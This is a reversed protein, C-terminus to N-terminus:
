EPIRDIITEEDIVLNYAQEDDNWLVLVNEMLLPSGYSASVIDNNLTTENTLVAFHDVKQSGDGVLYLPNGAETLDHSLKLVLCDVRDTVHRETEKLKAVRSRDARIDVATQGDRRLLSYAYQVDVNVFEGSGAPQIRGDTTTHQDTAKSQESSSGKTVAEREAVTRKGDDLQRQFSPTILDNDRRFSWSESEPQEDQWLRVGPAYVSAGVEREVTREVERLQGATNKDAPALVMATGDSTLWGLSEKVVSAPDDLESLVNGFLVLDFVGSEDAPSKVAGDPDFAEIETAHVTPHFNRGTTELLGTLVSTADSPEVAHYEVLVDGPLLADLGLAPGGVGAGVDLVRLHGPILNDELLDALVYQTAAFYASLHYLMYGVATEEDYTVTAGALYREKFDRILRRLQEGSEGDPWGPGFRDIVLNEVKRSLQEPLEDVGDFRVSVPSEDVPEFAGDEREIVGLEPAQEQLVQRVAAPHPTGEIYENIEEPEIPRVERLYKANERVQQRQTENM